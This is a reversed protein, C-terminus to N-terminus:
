ECRKKILNLLYKYTKWAKSKPNQSYISIHIDIIDKEFKYNTM